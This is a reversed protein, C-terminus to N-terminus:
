ETLNLMHNEFKEMASNHMSDFVDAYIDLTMHIDRHGLWNKLVVAPVGAEICRTAFTHRLAHQGRKSIGAKKCIRHFFCNVQSTTILDKKVYDYFILDFPNKQAKELSEKLVSELAKNIPIDRVGADTKAGDKIFNRYELGRSVTARVHLIGNELDIDDKRLANIEGMRMGSYLEILLQLRYDNRNRPVKFDKLVELFRTQEEQTFGKVVKEKKSSRPRRIATSEMINSEVIGKDKAIRYAAKVQQYLKKIVSESYRTLSRLFLNMQLETIEAIPLKGLGSKEIVTLNDLNRAYGQEGIFNMAYDDEYKRRLIDPITADMDIGASKKEMEVLFKEAKILCEEKTAASFSKRKREGFEDFYTFRYNYKGNINRFSGEGNGKKKRKAM